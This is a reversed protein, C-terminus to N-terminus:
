RLRKRQDKLMVGAEGTMRRWDRLSTSELLCIAVVVLPCALAGVHVEPVTLALLLSQVVSSHGWGGFAEFVGVM